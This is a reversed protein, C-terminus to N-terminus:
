CIEKRYSGGERVTLSTGVRLCAGHALELEGLLTHPAVQQHDQDDAEEDADEEAEADEPVAVVPDLVEAAVVGAEVAVCCGPVLQSVSGCPLCARCRGAQPIKTLAARHLRTHLSTSAGGHLCCLLLLRQLNSSRDTLKQQLTYYVVLEFLEM